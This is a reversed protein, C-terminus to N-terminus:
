HVANSVDVIITGPQEVFAYYRSRAEKEYFLEPHQAFVDRYLERTLSLPSDQSDDSEPSDM